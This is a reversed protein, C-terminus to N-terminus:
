NIDVHTESSIERRVATSIRRIRRSDSTGYKLDKYGFSSSCNVCACVSHTSLFSTNTENLQEIQTAHKVIRYSIDGMEVLIYMM